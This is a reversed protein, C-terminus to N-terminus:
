NEVPVYIFQSMREVRLVVPAGPRIRDLLSHLQAIGSIRTLNVALIVDGAELNVDVDRGVAKAEVLVGINSRFNASKVRLSQSLESCLVGLEPVYRMAPEPAIASSQQDSVGDEVKMQLNLLRSDRAVSITLTDGATKHYLIEYYQPVNDVQQGDLAIIVDRTRVGAAQGSAGFVLDSVLVGSERPLKLGEALTHTIGQVTIGPDAWAVNGKLRISEYIFNVLRSPIAFGLGESGGGQTILLTDIGVVSGNTDVLPGGSNGPNIAADTQVYLLHGDPNIQRAPSSVIGFSVSNQLGEPSGFAIVLQGQRVETDGKLSLAPLGEADVKIVALDAEKFEGIVRANLTSRNEHQTGGGPATRWKRDLTVTIRSAGAIVHANTVIYGAPDVIVGTGITHQLKLEAELRGDEDHGSKRPPVVVEVQVVSPAVKAVVKELADNFAALPDSQARAGLPWFLCSLVLLKRIHAASARIMARGGVM